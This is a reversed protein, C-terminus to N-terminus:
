IDPYLNANKTMVDKSEQLIEKQSPHPAQETIQVPPYAKQLYVALILFVILLVALVGSFIYTTLM